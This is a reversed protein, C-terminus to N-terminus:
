AAPYSVYPKSEPGLYKMIADQPIFVAMAGAILFAPLLCLLVHFSLYDILTIIASELAGAIIELVSVM